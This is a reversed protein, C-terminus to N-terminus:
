HFILLLINSLFLAEPCLIQLPLLKIKFCLQKSFLKIKVNIKKRRIKTILISLIANNKVELAEREFLRLQLCLDLKLRRTNWLDELQERGEQLQHLVGAFLM